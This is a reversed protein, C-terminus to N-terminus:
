LPVIIRHKIAYHTLEVNTNMNMKEMVRTRYTSVTKISLSLMKSVDTLTNGSALLCLVQFERDSLNRHPLISLDKEVSFAISEALSTTIYRGGDNIRKVANVLEGPVSSKNLYGAAGSKLATLAVEEEPHMSLILIKMEPKKQRLEILVDLGSKGPMTIDLILVDWHKEYLQQMLEEADSAEGTVEIEPDDSLIQKIGRRVVAHDDVIFVEIM